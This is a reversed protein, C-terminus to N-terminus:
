RSPGRRKYKWALLLALLPLSAWVAAYEQVAADRRADNRADQTREEMLYGELRRANRSPAPVAALNAAMKADNQTAFSQQSQAAPDIAQGTAKEMAQKFRDLAPVPVGAELGQEMVFQQLRPNGNMGLHHRDDVYVDFSEKWMQDTVTESVTADWGSLYEVFSRMEGAGLGGMYMFMDDDDLAGYLMTSSSHVIVVMAAGACIVGVWTPDPLRQPSAAIVALVFGIGLAILDRVRHAAAAAYVVVGLACLM